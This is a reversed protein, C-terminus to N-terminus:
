LSASSANFFAFSVLPFVDKDPVQIVAHVGLEKITIIFQANRFLDIEFHGSEDSVTSVGNQSILTSQLTGPMNNPRCFVLLGGVANGNSDLTRGIIRCLDPNSPVNIISGTYIPSAVTFSNIYTVQAAGLRPTIFIKDYYTGTSTILPVTYSYCGTYVAVIGTSTITDIIGTNATAGTSTRHITVKTVAYPTVLVNNRRYQFGLTTAEETNANLRNGM